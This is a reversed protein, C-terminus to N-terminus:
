SGTAVWQFNIVNNSGGSCLLTFTWQNSAFAPTGNTDSPYITTGSRCNGVIVTPAVTGQYISAPLTFTAAGGALTPTGSGTCQISRGSVTGRRVSSLLECVGSSAEWIYAESAVSTTAYANNVVVTGGYAWDNDREVFETTTSAIQIIGGSITGLLVPSYNREIQWGQGNVNILYNMTAGVSQVFLNGEITVRQAAGLDIVGIAPAIPGSNSTPPIQISWGDRIIWDTVVTGAVNNVSFLSRYYSVQTGYFVMEPPNYGAGTTTYNFFNIVQDANVNTNYFGEIGHNAALSTVQEAQACWFFHTNLVQILVTFPAASSFSLCTGAITGTFGLSIASNTVRSGGAGITMAGNAWQGAGLTTVSVTDLVFDPETSNNLTVDMADGCAVGNCVVKLNELHFSSTSPPSASQCNKFATVGVTGVTISTGQGIGNIYLSGACSSISTNIVAQGYLRLVTPNSGAALIFSNIADGDVYDALSMAAPLITQWQALSYGTTNRGNCSTITSLAHAAGDGIYCYVQLSGPYDAKSSFAQHLSFPNPAPDTSCTTNPYNACLHAGEVFGPNSQYLGASCPLLVVGLAFLLMRFKM